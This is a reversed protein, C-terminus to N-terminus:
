SAKRGAYTEVQKQSPAFEAIAEGLPDIVDRVKKSHFYAIGEDDSTKFYALNPITQDALFVRGEQRYKKLSEKIIQIAPEERRTPPNEPQEQKKTGVIRLGKLHPMLKPQLKSLSALFSEVSEASIRDLITPIILHTAATLGNIMGLTLRPATDIIVRDFLRGNEKEQEALLVRALRYRIDDTTEGALWGFMMRTEFTAFRYYCDIFRSDCDMKKIPQTAPLTENALLYQASPMLHFDRGPAVMTSLSGQYDFDILLVKEGHVKDFYAALNAAITTKGVGGKLNALCIVPVSDLMRTGYGDPLVIPERLWIDEEDSQALDLFPQLKRAKEDRETSVKALKNRLLESEAWVANRDNEAEKEQKGLKWLEEDHKRNNRSVIVTSVALSVAGVFVGLLAIAGEYQNLSYLAEFM